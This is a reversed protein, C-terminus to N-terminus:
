DHDSEEKPKPYCGVIMRYPRGGSGPNSSFRGVVDTIADRLAQAFAARQTASEFEIEADISLTSLRKDQADAQRASRGLESQMTGALGLLHGASAPDTLRRPDAAVPGLVTPALVYARASAVYRQEVLNRKKRTGAKHLFGAKALARVHYNVRQRPLGMREAITAASAPQQAESLIRLRMPDLLVVARDSAEVTAVDRAQANPSM